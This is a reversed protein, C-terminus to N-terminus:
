CFRHMRTETQPKWDCGLDFASALMHLAALIIHCHPQTRERCYPCVQRYIPLLEVERAKISGEFGAPIEAQLCPYVASHGRRVAV